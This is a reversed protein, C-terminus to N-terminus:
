EHNFQEESFHDAKADAEYQEGVGELAEKEMILNHLLEDVQRVTTLGRLAIMGQLKILAGQEAIDIVKKLEKELDFM